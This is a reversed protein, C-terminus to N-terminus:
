IFPFIYILCPSFLSLSRVRERARACQFVIIKHMGAFCQVNGISKTQETTTTTTTLITYVNKPAKVARKRREKLGYGKYIYMYLM